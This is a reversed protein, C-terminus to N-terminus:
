NPLSEIACMFDSDFQNTPMLIVWVNKKKFIETVWKGAQQFEKQTPNRRSGRAKQIAPGGSMITIWDIYVDPEYAAQARGDMYLQLPTKGTNTDPAQGYAIFGGETWYNYM